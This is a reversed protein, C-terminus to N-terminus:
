PATRATGAGSAKGPVDHAESWARRYREVEASWRERDWGLEERSLAEVRSLIEEGGRPLLLGVRVRRLLLDDLHAVGEARAAWRLEAWLVPTHAVPELEGDRAAAAVFPADAGYRGVLRRRVPEALRELAGSGEDAAGHRPAAPRQPRGSARVVRALARDVIARFGTLKGSIVTLLGEEEWLVSDRGARYPDGRAAGVVPRVGAFAGLLRSADLGVGPLWAGVGELLYSVEAPTARPERGEGGADDVDTTGVLTVGEWPLLYLYRGNVPHRLGVAHSLPLVERPVILHTGRVPRLRPAAGVDRRLRDAWVGTANVVVGARALVTRGSAVDVLEAGRVRGGERVLSEARVYNLVVAGDHAAERLTRLVLRADDTVADRYGYGGDLGEELVGPILAAVEDRSHRRWTKRKGRLLDYLRVGAAYGLRDGKRGSYTPLVFDLPDVLGPREALLRDRELLLRRTLAVRGEKLYRMGGHVLKASRSSTGSAFDRGEVLAADLGLRAAELLLGAGTIGGGIVLLDLPERLRDWADDRWTGGWRLSGDGALASLSGPGGPGSRRERDYM